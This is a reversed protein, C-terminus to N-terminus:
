SLGGLDHVARIVPGLVRGMPSPRLTLWAGALLYAALLVRSWRQARGPPPDPRGTV